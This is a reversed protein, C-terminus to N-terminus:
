MNPPRMIQAAADAEQDVREATEGLAWPRLDLGGLPVPDLDPQDFRGAAYQGPPRPAVAQLALRARLAVDGLPQALEVLQARGARDGVVLVLVLPLRDEVRNVIARAIAPGSNMATDDRGMDGVRADAMTDGDDGREAAGPTVVGLGGLRLLDARFISLAASSGRNGGSAAM